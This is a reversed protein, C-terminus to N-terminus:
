QLKEVFWGRYVETIKVSQSSVLPNILKKVEQTDALDFAERIEIPSILPHVDLLRQLNELSAAIPQPKIKDDTLKEIVSVFGEYGILSQILVEKEGYKLLYAPLARIKHEQGLEFDRELAEKATDGDFHKCFEAVDIDTKDVVKLIEKRHTTPRCDVITAYRLNYLFRDAKELSALEAAKYALNLPISSTHETDFLRFDTM